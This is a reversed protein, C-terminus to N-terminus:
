FIGLGLLMLMIIAMNLLLWAVSWRITNVLNLESYTKM